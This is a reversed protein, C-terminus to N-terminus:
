KRSFRLYVPPRAAEKGKQEYRTEPWDPPRIRWDRAEQALWGFSPHQWTKELMWGALAPDDTALRLEAGPKMKEKVIDLTETQVFRRRWHKKKPWPDPHLIFFRDLSQPKLIDLLLRADDPWIRINKLGWEDIKMLLGSVGNMFPECGIFGIDPNAKAQEALHEGAGFGVEFWVARVPFPFLSAPDLLDDPKEPLSIRVRPLTELLATSRGGKLKRGQRRGYFRFRIIDSNEKTDTM